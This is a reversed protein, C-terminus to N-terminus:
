EEEKGAAEEESFNVKGTFKEGEGLIKFRGSALIQGKNEITMLLEKNVGFSKKELMINSVITRQGREDNFAESAGLLQQTGRGLEYFKIVYEVDNLPKKLFAAFYIKWGKKENDEKFNTGSQKRVAAIYADKSKATLPFRKTSLMIRGNFVVNPDGARAPSVAVALMLISAVFITRVSM